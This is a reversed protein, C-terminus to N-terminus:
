HPQPHGYKEYFQSTFTEEPDYFRKREFARHANPYARHLQEASPYLQYTLYYTGGNQIAADVLQRTVAQAHAQAEASLGVNSMQIIAFAERHPAYALVPTANPAVYRVTSSLVNMRGAVLIERFRDMFPVFNEVPVYYEQIIDTDHSSHYQLLELPALPPRMANNRSVVRSEGAGLEVQKQLSWRLSKAWDFRRSLGLFFRDRWVHAEETLQFMTSSDTATSGAGARRWTVVVLERLFSGPDPDISPRVLMLAIGRDSKIRQTFYKPFAAYDLSIAQQQYLEDPTVRLTVDLIVGYMGYGGIVLSFLEPNQERSVEVISGDALLLRFRAVVDVVQMLDLDRGHANASLTGGVTFINSSQMVKLALRRPAIARQVEDWTAGSEVTVTRAVPDVGLVRNFGRMNLVVGGATYTQGGQSHRSGAISVKLRRRKADLLIGQLQEVSRIDDVAAVRAPALRAVDSAVRSDRVRFLDGYSVVFTSAYLILAIVASATL